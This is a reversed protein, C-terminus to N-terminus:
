GHPREVRHYIFLPARGDPRLGGAPVFNQSVANQQVPAYRRGIASARIFTPSSRLRETQIFMPTAGSAVRRSPSAFASVTTTPEPIAPRDVAYSSAARPWVTITSSRLAIPPPMVARVVAWRVESHSSEKSLRILM